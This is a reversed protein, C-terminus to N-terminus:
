NQQRRIKNVRRQKKKEETKRLATEPGHSKSMENTETTEHQQNTPKAPSYRNTEAGLLVMGTVCIVYMSPTPLKSSQQKTIIKLFFSFVRAACRVNYLWVCVGDNLRQISSGKGFNSTYNQRNTVRWIFIRM